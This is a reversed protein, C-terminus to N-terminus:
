VQLYYTLKLINEFRVHKQDYKIKMRNNNMVLYTVSGVFIRMRHIRIKHVFDTPHPSTTHEFHRTKVAVANSNCGFLCHIILIMTITNWFLVFLM